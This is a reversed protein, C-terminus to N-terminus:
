VHYNTEPVKYLTVQGTYAIKCQVLSRKVLYWFFVSMYLQDSQVYILVIQKSVVVIEVLKIKAVTVVIAIVTILIM